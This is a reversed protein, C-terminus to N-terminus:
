FDLAAALSQGADDLSGPLGALDVWFRRREFPYTPLPVRRRTEGAHLDRWDVDEGALWRRAAATTAPAPGDGGGTELPSGTAAATRLAQCAEAGGRALVALRHEFAKRGTQLTFAVDALEAATLDPHRALWDALRGAM